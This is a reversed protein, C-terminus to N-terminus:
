LGNEIIKEYIKSINTAYEEIISEQDVKNEPWKSAPYYIIVSLMAESENDYDIFLEFYCSLEFCLMKNSLKKTLVDVNKQSVDTIAYKILFSITDPRLKGLLEKDLLEIM